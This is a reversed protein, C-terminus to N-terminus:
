ACGIQFICADPHIYKEFPNYREKPLFVTGVMPLIQRKARGIKRTFSRSRPMLSITKFLCVFGLLEVSFWELICL